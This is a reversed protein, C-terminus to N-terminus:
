FMSCLGSTGTSYAENKSADVEPIFSALVVMIWDSQIHFRSSYFSFVNVKVLNIRFFIAITFCVIFVRLFVIFRVNLARSFIVNM